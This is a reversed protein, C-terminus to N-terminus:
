HIDEWLAIAINDDGGNQNAMAILTDVKAEVEENSTLVALIEERSVMSFLGDSCLFISYISFHHEKGKNAHFPLVKMDMRVSPFLGIANTLIHRSKYHEREEKQIRGINVLYDAITEDSTVQDLTVADDEKRIRLTYARSDGVNVFILSSSLLLCVVLTTAMHTPYPVDKEANFIDENISRITKELWKKAQNVSFFRSKKKFANMLKLITEQSAVDGKQHGGMGDCVALLVDGHANTVITAHDENVKRKQGIDTKYCFDGYHKM